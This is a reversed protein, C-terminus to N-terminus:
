VQLDLLSDLVLLKSEPVLCLWEVTSRQLVIKNRLLQPKTLKRFETNIYFLPYSVNEYWSDIGFNPTAVLVRFERAVPLM